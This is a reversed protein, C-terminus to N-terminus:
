KLSSHPTPLSLRLAAMRAMRSTRLPYIIGMKLWCENKRPGRDWGPIVGRVPFTAPHGAKASSDFETGDVLSGKYNVSVEDNASPADGSGQTIVKYQLGDPLTFVGPKSKNADLFAAGAASNKQSEEMMMKQHNAAAAQRFSAMATTMEQPSMLTTSGSSSAKLGSMVLDMDLEVGTQKLGSGLYMGLAYSERSKEDPLASNANGASPSSTQGNCASLFAAAALFTFTLASKKM